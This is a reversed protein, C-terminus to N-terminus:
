YLTKGYEKEFNDKYRQQRTISLKKCLYYFILTMLFSVIVVVLAIIWKFTTTIEGFVGLFYGLGLCIFATRNLYIENLEYSIDVNNISCM